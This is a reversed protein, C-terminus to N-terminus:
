TANSQNDTQKNIGVGVSAPLAFQEASHRGHRSATNPELNTPLEREGGGGDGREGGEQGGRGYMTLKVSPEDEKRYGEM